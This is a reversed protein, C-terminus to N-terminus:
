RERVKVNDNLAAIRDHCAELEDLLSELKILEDNTM